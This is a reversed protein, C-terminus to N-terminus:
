QKCKRLPEPAAGSSPVRAVRAGESSHSEGPLTRESSRKAHEQTSGQVRAPQPAGGPRKDGVDGRATLFPEEAAQRYLLQLPGASARWAGLRIVFKSGLAVRLHTGSHFGFWCYLLGHTYVVATALNRRRVGVAGFHSRFRKV